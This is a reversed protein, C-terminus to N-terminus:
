IKETPLLGLVLGALSTFEAPSLHATMYPNLPYGEPHKADFENTDANYDLRLNSIPRKSKETGECYDMGFSNLDFDFSISWDYLTGLSIGLKGLAPQLKEFGPLSNISGLKEGKLTVRRVAEQDFEIDLEVASNHSTSMDIRSRTLQNHAESPLYFAHSNYTVESSGNRSTGTATWEVKQEDKKIGGFLGRKNASAPPLKLRTAEVYPRAMDQLRVLIDGRNEPESLNIEPISETDDRMRTVLIESTGSLPGALLLESPLPVHAAPAVNNEDKLSEAVGTEGLKSVTTSRVSLDKETRPAELQPSPSADVGEVIRDFPDSLNNKFASTYKNKNQM